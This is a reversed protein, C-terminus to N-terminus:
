PSAPRTTPWARGAPLKGAQDVGARPHSRSRGTSTVTVLGALGTLRLGSEVAVSPDAIRLRTGRRAAVSAAPALAVLCMHDSLRLDAVDIVVALNAQHDLLHLLAGGLARGSDQDLLGHATVM